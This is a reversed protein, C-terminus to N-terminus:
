SVEKFEYILEKRRKENREWQSWGQRANSLKMEFWQVGLSEWWFFKKEQMKGCNLCIRLHLFRDPHHWEHKDCKATM